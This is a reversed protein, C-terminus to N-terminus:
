GALQTTAAGQDTAQYWTYNVGTPPLSRSEGMARQLASLQANDSRSEWTGQNQYGAGMRLAERFYDAHASNQNLGVGKRMERDIYEGWYEAREPKPAPLRYPEGTEAEFLREWNEQTEKDLRIYEVRSLRDPVQSDQWALVKRHETVVWVALYGLGMLVVLTSLLEWMSM